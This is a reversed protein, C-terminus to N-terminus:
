HLADLRRKLGELESAAREHKDRDREVIEAPARSTFGENALKDRLRREEAEVRAIDKTLRALERAHLEESIPMAIAIDHVMGMAWHGTEIPAKEGIRTANVPLLTEILRRHREVLDRRGADPTSVYLELREGPSINLEGRLNRACGVIEQLLAMDSEVEPARDSAVVDGGAWPAIMISRSGLSRLMAAVRRENTPPAGGYRERVAQWIEETVFPIIPHLARLTAELVVLLLRQTNRRLRRQAATPQDGVYLRPKCLELYWDCYQHWVFHYVSLAAADFAYREFAAEVEGITQGLVSLIWRDETTLLTEDIGAALDEPMLDESTMLVFRAANWLKNIFNRYGEFRKKSLYIVPTQIAYACLTMRLADAGYEEIMELPDIVNGLSKSMKKRTVEDFIMAHIYVDRFPAEDCFKLGMMIMRAVWFFLIEHATVLTATPYFKKLDATEDPWGLTSFPWLASSFWTDLVDPDQEVSSSGCKPCFSLMEEETVHISGCDGCTWVPIRHGWWLQRSIPWDPVTDIWHFYM